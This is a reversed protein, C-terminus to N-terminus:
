KISLRYIKTVDENVNDGGATMAILDGNEDEVIRSVGRMAKNFDVSTQVFSRTNLDFVDMVDSESQGDLGHGFLYGRSDIFTNKLITGGIGLETFKIWRNDVFEYFGTGTGLIFQDGFTEVVYGEINFSEPFDDEFTIKEQNAKSVLFCVEETITFAYFSSNEAFDRLPIFGSGTYDSEYITEFDGPDSPNFRIARGSRTSVLKDESRYYPLGHFLQDQIFITGRAFQFTGSREELSNFSNDYITYKDSNVIAYKRTTLDYDFGYIRETGFMDTLDEVEINFSPEGESNSCSILLILVSNFAIIKFLPLKM